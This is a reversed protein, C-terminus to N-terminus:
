GGRLRFAPIYAVVPIFPASGVPDRVSRIDAAAIVAPLVPLSIDINHGDHSQLCVPEAHLPGSNLRFGALDVQFRDIMVPFHNCIHSRPPDPRKQRQLMKRQRLPKFGLASEGAGRIHPVEQFIDPNRDVIEAVQHRVVAREILRIQVRNQGVSASAKRGSLVIGHGHAPDQRHHRAAVDPSILLNVPHPLPHAVRICFDAGAKM